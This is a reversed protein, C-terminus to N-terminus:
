GATRIEILELRGSGGRLVRELIFGIGPAYTKEELVNPEIVSGNQTKKSSDIYAPTKTAEGTM